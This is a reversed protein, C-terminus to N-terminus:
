NVVKIFPIGSYGKTLEFGGFQEDGNGYLEGTLM